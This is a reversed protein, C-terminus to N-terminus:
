KDQGLPKPGPPKSPCPSEGPSPEVLPDLAIVAGSPAEYVVNLGHEALFDSDEPRYVVYARKGAPYKEDHPFNSFTERGSANRYYNLSADYRWNTAVDDLGCAHNYSALVSYLRDTDSDWKWEKFYSMRLCLLFYSGLVIMLITLGRQSIEGARTPIPVAALIGAFLTSLVVIWIGTRDKPLPIGMARFLVWHMALAAAIALIPVAAFMPSWRTQETRQSGRHILLLVARWVTLIGFAPLLIRPVPLDIFILERVLPRLEYFSAQSLSRFTETLSAAGYSLEGRDWQLLIPGAVAGALLLGPLFCAAALRARTAFSKGASAWVYLVVICAADVFTFSFNSLFSLAICLSAAICAGTVRPSKAGPVLAYAVFCIASLLFGSALGYGRAAVLFDFVFPNFVLCIFLFVRLLFRQAILTSLFYAAVIYIAAGILAGSRAVLNSTGFARTFTWALISNLVHNNAHAALFNPQAPRIFNTYTVAEDITIAQAQARVIAWAMAFVALAILIRREAAASM